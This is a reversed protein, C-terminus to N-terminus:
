YEIIKDIVLSRCSEGDKLKYQIQRTGGTPSSNVDGEKYIPFRRCLVSEVIAMEDHGMYGKSAETNDTLEPICIQSISQGNNVSYGILKGYSGSGDSTLYVLVEPYGDANLDGAESNTVTYGNIDQKLPENVALLGYPIIILTDNIVEVNFSINKDNIVHAYSRPDLLSHDLPTKLRIYEQDLSAGGSCYYYLGNPNSSTVRLTDSQLIFYITEGDSQVVLSDAGILRGIGDFRCTPKKIDARSRVAVRAMSDNVPTVSVAVFDYGENRQNYESTAYDGFITVVSDSVLEMKNEKSAQKCSSLSVIMAIIVFLCSKKKM